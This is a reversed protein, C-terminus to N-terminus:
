DFNIWTANPTNEFNKIYEDFEAKEVSKGNIKYIKEIDDWEALYTIIKEGEIFSMTGISGYAAGGSSEFRGDAKLPNIGRYVEDYGYLKGDSMSYDIILFFNDAKFYKIILEDQLDMDLDVLTYKTPNFGLKGGVSNLYEFLTFASGNITFKQNGNLVGLLTENKNEILKWEIKDDGILLIPKTVADYAEKSVEEGNIDYWEPNKGDSEWYSFSIQYKTNGYFDPVYYIYNTHEPAGGHREYLIAGNNLPRSYVATEERWLHIQNDVITFIHLENRINVILEPNSDGNMDYLAYAAYTDPEGFFDFDTIYAEEGNENIFPLKGSLFDTYPEKDDPAVGKCACLSLILAFFLVIALLKKM